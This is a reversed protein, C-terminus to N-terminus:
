PLRTFGQEAFHADFTFVAELGLDRMLEFSTCDVLSLDRRNATLVTTVARHHADPTVWEVQMVPLLHDHFSRVADLGLRRQVLAVTEVVIYNSTVLQPHQSAWQRWLTAAPHHFRDDPSILAIIASTDVFVTM